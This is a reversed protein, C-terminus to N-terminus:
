LAEKVIISTPKSSAKKRVIAKLAREKFMPKMPASKVSIGLGRIARWDQTSILMIRHKSTPRTISSGRIGVTSDMIRLLMISILMGLKFMYMAVARLPVIARTVM